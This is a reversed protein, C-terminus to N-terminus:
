LSDSLFQIIKRKIDPAEDYVAHSYQDYIYSPFDLKKIIECSGEVGIYRCDSLFQIIKRKIDPAEDYVAHSYQDYIYSPFDLKKIIECSGEVGIYRRRKKEIASHFKVKSYLNLRFM